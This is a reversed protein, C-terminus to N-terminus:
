NLLDLQLEEGAESRITVSNTDIKAIHFSSNRITEGVHYSEAGFLAVSNPGTQIIGSLRPPMAFPAAAPVVDTSAAAPPTEVEPPTSEGTEVPFVASEPPMGKPNAGLLSALAGLLGDNQPRAPPGGFESATNPAAAGAHLVGELGFVGRGPCAAVMEGTENQVLWDTLHRIDDGTPLKEEAPAQAKPTAAHGGIACQRKSRLFVVVAVVALVAM